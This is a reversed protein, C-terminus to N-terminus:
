KIINKIYIEEFFFCISKTILFINLFCSFRGGDVLIPYPILIKGEVKKMKMWKFVSSTLLRKAVDGETTSSKFVCNNLLVNREPKTPSIKKGFRYSGKLCLIPRTFSNQPFQAVQECFSKGEYIFFIMFGQLQLYMKIKENKLELM